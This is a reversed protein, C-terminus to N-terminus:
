SHSYGPQAIVEERAHPSVSLSGFARRAHPLCVQPARKLRGARGPTGGCGTVSATRWDEPTKDPHLRMVAVSVDLIARCTVGTAITTFAVQLQLIYAPM